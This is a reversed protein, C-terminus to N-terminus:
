DNLLENLRLILTRRQKYTLRSWIQDIQEKLEVDKALEYSTISTESGALNSPFDKDELDAYCDSFFWSIPTNLERAIIALYGVNIKNIGKEFRAVQQQSLGIREALYQTTVGKKKRQKRIREGVNRCISHVM